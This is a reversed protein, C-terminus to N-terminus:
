AKMQFLIRFYVDIQDLDFGAGFMRKELARQEIESDVLASSSEM